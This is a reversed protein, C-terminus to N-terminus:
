GLSPDVITGTHFIKNIPTNAQFDYTVNWVSGVRVAKVNGFDVILGDQVGAIALQSNLYATTFSILDSGTLTFLNAGIFLVRSNASIERNLQAEIREVSIEPSSGDPNILFDNLQLSNISQNVVFGLQPVTRVHLVGSDIADVRQSETLVHKLKSIRLSKYTLPVQPEVGAMRGAVLAAMYISSKQQLVQLNLIYQVELGSHCLTAYRSNLTAAATKSTAFGASDNGGGIILFKKFEADNQIHGLIKLNNVGAASADNEMSLFISNDLEKIQALIDDLATGGYVDTGGTFSQFGAFTVLDAPLIVGTAAMAGGFAFLETFEGNTAGWAILEAVDAVEISEAVLRPSLAANAATIGGFELSNADQGRYQGVYFEFIFKAPDVIGAKLKWSYGSELNTANLVTNAFVGEEKTNFETTFANAWTAGSNSQAITTKAAKLLFVKSAGAGHTSPNYLYDALDYLIGGKVFQKMEASSNFETIHDDLSRPNSGSDLVGKGGGFGAGIGTDIICINGFSSPSGSNGVGGIIKAQATPETWIKGDFITKQGM